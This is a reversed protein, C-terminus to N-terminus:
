ASGFPLCTAAFSRQALYCPAKNKVKFQIGAYNINGDYKNWMVSGLLSVSAANQPLKIEMELNENTIFTFDRSELGIGQFSLNKLLGLSFASPGYTTRFKVILPIDYRQFKRKNKEQM